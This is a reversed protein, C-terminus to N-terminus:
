PTAETVLREIEALYITRGDLTTFRRGEVSGRRAEYETIAGTHTNLVQVTVPLQDRDWGRILHTLSGILMLALLGYALPRILALPILPPRPAGDAGLRARRIRARIVLTAGLIVLTTLLLKWIM